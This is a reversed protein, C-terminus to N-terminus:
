SQAKPNVYDNAAAYQEDTVGLESRVPQPAFDYGAATTPRIRHRSRLWDACAQEM